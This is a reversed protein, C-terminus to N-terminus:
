VEGFRLKVRLLKLVSNLEKIMCKNGRNVMTIVHKIPM